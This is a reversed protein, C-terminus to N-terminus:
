MVQPWFRVPLIAKGQTNGVRPGPCLEPVSYEQGPDRGWNKVTGSGGEGM